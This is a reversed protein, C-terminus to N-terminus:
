PLRSMNRWYMESKADVRSSSNLTISLSACRQRPSKSLCAGTCVVGLAFAGAFHCSDFCGCENAGDAVLGGCVNTHMAGLIGTGVMQAFFATTAAIAAPALLPPFLPLHRM